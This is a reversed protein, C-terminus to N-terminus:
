RKRELYARDRKLEEMSSAMFRPKARVQLRAFIATVTTLAAFALTILVAALVRHDDWFIILLTVALMLVCLAGFFLALMTWALIVVGRQLEEEFETTLLEIRTHILAVMTAGFQRVSALLGLPRQTGETLEEPDIASL